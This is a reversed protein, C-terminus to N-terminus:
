RHLLDVGDRTEWIGFGLERFWGAPAGERICLGRLRYMPIPVYGIPVDDRPKILEIMLCAIASKGDGFYTKKEFGLPGFCGYEKNYCLM